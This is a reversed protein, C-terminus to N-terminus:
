GQPRRDLTRFLDVLALVFGPLVSGGDLTQTRTLTRELRTPQTYIAVTRLQVDIEWVLQVGAAFYVNRKHQMEAAPNSDSLVEAVLTPLAPCIPDTPMGEPACREWPVLAVDPLFTWDPHFAFPCDPGSVIGLNHTDLYHNFAAVLRGGVSSERLGMPKEVWVGAWQECLGACAAASLPEPQWRQAPLNFRELVRPLAAIPQSM